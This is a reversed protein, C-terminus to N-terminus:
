LLASLQSDCQHQRMTSYYKEDKYISCIGDSQIFRVVKIKVDVREFLMWVKGYEVNETIDYGLLKALMISNAIESKFKEMVVM